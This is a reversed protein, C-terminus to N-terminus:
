KRDTDTSKSMDAFVRGFEKAEDGTIVRHTFDIKDADIM